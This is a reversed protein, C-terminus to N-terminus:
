FALVLHAGGPAPVISLSMRPHTGPFRREYEALDDDGHWPRSLIMVEGVAIGIGASRWGRTEDDFGYAVIAAGAANLLLNGLHRKWDWRTETDVASRRLLDEGVLLRERCSAEDTTAVVRMPEAGLRAPPRDFLQRVTGILAKGASVALDAQKGESDEVGARVGQLVTGVGYASTWGRWWWTAYPRRQELREEIFRIREATGADCRALDTAEAARVASPMGAALVLAVFLRLGIERAVM